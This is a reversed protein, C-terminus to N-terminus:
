ALLRWIHIRYERQNPMHRWHNPWCQAWRLRSRQPQDAVPRNKQLNQISAELKGQNLLEIIACGQDSAHQCNRFQCGLSADRLEPFGRIVEGATWHANEFDRIGPSDM